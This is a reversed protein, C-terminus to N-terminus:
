NNHRGHKRKMQILIAFGIDEKFDHEERQQIRRKFEDEIAKHHKRLKSLQERLEPISVMAAGPYYRHPVVCLSNCCGLM